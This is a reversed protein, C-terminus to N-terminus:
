RKQGFIGPRFSTTGIIIDPNSKAHVKILDTLDKKRFITIDPKCWGKKM